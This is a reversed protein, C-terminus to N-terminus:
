EKKNEFTLFLSHKLWVQVWTPIYTYNLIHSSIAERIYTHVICQTMKVLSISVTLIKEIIRMLLFDSKNFKIFLRLNIHSQSSPNKFIKKSNFIKWKQGWAFKTLGLRGKTGAFVVRASIASPTQIMEAMISTFARRAKTTNIASYVNVIAHVMHTLYTPVFLLSIRGLSTNWTDFYALIINVISRIFILPRVWIQYGENPLGVLKIIFWFIITVKTQECIYM